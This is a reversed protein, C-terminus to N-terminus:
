NRRLFFFLLGVLVALSLLAMAIKFKSHTPAPKPEEKPKYNRKGLTYHQYMCEMIHPYKKWLGTRHSRAYKIAKMLERDKEPYKKTYTHYVVAYGQRVAEVNYVKDDPMYIWGILRGHTTGEMLEMKYKKGVEMVRKAFETAEKGAEKMAERGVGCMKVDREFKSSHFKEPTDIGFIRISEDKGHIRMEFTDGDKVREMLGYVIERGWLVGLSGVLLLTVGKKLNM